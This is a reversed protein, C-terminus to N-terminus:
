GSEVSRRLVGGDYIIVHIPDVSACIDGDNAPGECREGVCTM